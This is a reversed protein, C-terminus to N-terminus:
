FKELDWPRYLLLHEKVNEVYKKMIGECKGCLEGYKGRIDEHERVNKVYKKMNEVHKTM